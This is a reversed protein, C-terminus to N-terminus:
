YTVSDSRLGSIGQWGRHLVGTGEKMEEWINCGGTDVVRTSAVRGGRYLNADVRKLRLLRLRNRRWGWKWELIKHEIAIGEQCVKEPLVGLKHIDHKMDL